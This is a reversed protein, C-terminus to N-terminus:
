NKWLHLAIRSHSCASRSDRSRPTRRSCAHTFNRSPPWRLVTPTSRRSMGRTRASDSNPEPSLLAPFKNPIVRVSWEEERGAGPAPIMFVSAPTLHENGPCFPCKDDHSKVSEPEARDKAFDDPRKGRETAIISWSRTAIDQRLRPM